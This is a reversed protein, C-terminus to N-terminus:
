SYSRDILLFIPPNQMTNLHISLWLAVHVHLVGYSDMLVIERLSFQDYEYDPVTHGRQMLTTSARIIVDVM